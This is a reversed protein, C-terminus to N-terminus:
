RNAKVFVIRSLYMKTNLRSLNAIKSPLVTMITASTVCAYRMFYKRALNLRREKTIEVSMGFACTLEIKCKKLM